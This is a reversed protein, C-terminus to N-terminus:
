VLGQQDVSREREKKRQKEFERKQAEEKELLVKEEKENCARFPSGFIVEAEEPEKTYEEDLFQKGYILLTECFSRCAGLSELEDFLFSCNDFLRAKQEERCNVYVLHAKRLRILLERRREEKTM